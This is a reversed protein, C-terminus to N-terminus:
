SNDKANSRVKRPNEMWGHLARTLDALFVLLKKREAQSRGEMLPELHSLFAEHAAKYIKRGDSTLTVHLSRRDKPHDVRKVLEKNELQDVVGTMTSLRVQLDAALESMMKPGQFYLVRLCYSQSVTLTGYLREDLSRFQYLKAMNNLADALALVDDSPTM